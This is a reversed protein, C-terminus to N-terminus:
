CENSNCKSCDTAISHTRLNKKADHLVIEARRNCEMKFQEKVEQKTDDHQRIVKYIRKQM